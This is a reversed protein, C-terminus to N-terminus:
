MTTQHLVTRGLSITRLIGVTMDFSEEQHSTSHSHSWFWRSNFDLESVHLCKILYSLCSITNCAWCYSLPCLCMGPSVLWCGLRSPLNGMLHSVSEWFVLHIHCSFGHRLSDEPMWAYVWIYTSGGCVAYTFISWYQLLLWYSRSFIPRWCALPSPYYHYWLWFPVREFNVLLQYSPETNLPM